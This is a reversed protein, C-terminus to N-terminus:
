GAPEGRARSRRRRLRGGSAATERKAATQKVGRPKPKRAPKPKPWPEIPPPDLRYDATGRLARLGSLDPPATAADRGHRLEAWVPLDLVRQPEAASRRHLLDGPVQQPDDVVFGALIEDYREVLVRNAPDLGAVLVMGTPETDLPVVVLDPRYRELVTAVKFVDGAWGVTHRDRAAEDVSRPLMDDFVVVSHAAANREVNIFDRFAFEFLHMGDVFALDIVGEAFWGIADERAFFDDSTAQVLQLDCALEATIKYRPDVGVTRTRSQALGRGDRIGIELYSRPQLRDHLSRLFEHRNM